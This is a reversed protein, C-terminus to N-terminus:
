FDRKEGVLGRSVKEQSSFNYEFPTITTGSSSGCGKEQLLRVTLENNRFFDNIDEPLQLDKVNVMLRLISKCNNASPGIESLAITIMDILTAFQLGKSNKIVSPTKRNEISFSVSNNTSYYGGSFLQQAYPNRIVKKTIPDNENEFGMFVFHRGENTIFEGTLVSNSDKKIKSDESVCEVQLIINNKIMKRWTIEKLGIIKEGDRLLEETLSTIPLLTDAGHAFDSSWTFFLEAKCSAKQEIKDVKINELNILEESSNEWQQFPSSNELNHLSTLLNIQQRLCLQILEEQSVEVIEIFSPLEIKEDRSCPMIEM